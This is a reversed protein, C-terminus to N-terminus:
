AMFNFYCYILAQSGQIGKLITWLEVVFIKLTHAVTAFASFYCFVKSSPVKLGNKKTNDSTAQLSVLSFAKTPSVHTYGRAQFSSAPCNSNSWLRQKASILGKGQSLCFILNISKFLQPAGTFILWLVM